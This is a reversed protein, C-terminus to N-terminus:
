GFLGRLWSPWELYRGVLQLMLLLVWGLSARVPSPDGRRRRGRKQQEDHGTMDSAM